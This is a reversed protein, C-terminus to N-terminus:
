ENPKDEMTVFLSTAYGPMNGQLGRTFSVCMKRLSELRIGLRQNDRANNAARRLDNIFRDIDSYLKKASKSIHDIQRQSNATKDEMQQQNRRRLESSTLPDNKASKTRVRDTGQSADFDIEDVVLRDEVSDIADSSDLIEESAPNSIDYTMPSNRLLEGSYGQKHLQEIISSVVSSKMKKSGLRVRVEESENKEKKMKTKSKKRLLSM